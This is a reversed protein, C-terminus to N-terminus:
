LAKLTPLGRQRSLKRDMVDMGRLAKDSAKSM